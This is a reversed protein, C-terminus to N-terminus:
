LGLTSRAQHILLAIQPLHPALKTTLDTAKGAISLLKEGSDLVSKWNRKEPAKPIESAIEEVARLGDQVERGKLEMSEQLLAAIEKLSIGENGIHSISQIANDTAIAQTQITVPGHFNQQVGGSMTRKKRPEDFYVGFNRITEMAGRICGEAIACDQQFKVADGPSITESPL